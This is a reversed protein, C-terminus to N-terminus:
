YRCLSVIFQPIINSFVDYAIATITYNFGVPAWLQVESINAIYPTGTSHFLFFYIIDYTPHMGQLVTFDYTWNKKDLGNCMVLISYNGAINTLYDVTFIGHGPNNVGTTM